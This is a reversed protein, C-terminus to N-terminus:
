NTIVSGLVLRLMPTRKLAGNLLLSRSFKLKWFSFEFKSEWPNNPKRSVPLLAPILKELPQLWLKLGRTLLLAFKERLRLRLRVAGYKAYVSFIAAASPTLPVECYGM